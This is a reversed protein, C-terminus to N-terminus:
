TIIIMHYENCINLSVLEIKLLAKSYNPNAINLTGRIDIFLPGFVM